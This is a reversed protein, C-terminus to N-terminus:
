RYSRPAAMICRELAAPPPQRARKEEFSRFTRSVASRVAIESPGVRRHNALKVPHDILVVNPEAEALSRFKKAARDASLGGLRGMRAPVDTESLMAVLVTALDDQTFPKICLKRGRHGPPVGAQGYGSVFLFPVQRKALVDAIPYSMEGGLNVDLVAFDFGGTQVMVLASAVTSCSGVIICGFDILFDELLAYCPNRRRRDLGTQRNAIRDSHGHM